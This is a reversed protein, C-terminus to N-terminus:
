GLQLPVTAAIALCDTSVLHSWILLLACGFPAVDVLASYQHRGFSRRQDASRAAFRQKAGDEPNMNTDCISLNLWPKEATGCSRLYGAGRPDSLHESRSQRLRRVAVM